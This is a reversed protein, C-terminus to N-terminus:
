PEIAVTGAQLNIRIRGVRRRDNIGDVYEEYPVTLRLGTAPNYAATIQSFFYGLVGQGPEAGGILKCMKGAAPENPLQPLPAVIVLWGSCCVPEGWTDTYTVRVKGNYFARTNQALPEVAFTLSDKNGDCDQVSLGAAAAPALSMALLGAALLKM